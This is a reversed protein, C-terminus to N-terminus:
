DKRTEEELIQDLTEWNKQTPAHHEKTSQGITVNTEGAGHAVGVKSFVMETGNLASKNLVLCSGERGDFDEQVGEDSLLLLPTV